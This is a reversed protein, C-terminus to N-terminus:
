ATWPGQRSTRAQLQPIDVKGVKSTNPRDYSRQGRWTQTLGVKERRILWTPPGTTRPHPSTVALDISTM